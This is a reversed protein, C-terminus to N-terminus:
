LICSLLWAVTSYKKDTGAWSQQHLKSEGRTEIISQVGIADNFSLQWCCNDFKHLTRVLVLLRWIVTMLTWSWDWDDDMCSKSSILCPCSESTYTCWLDHLYVVNIGIKHVNLVFVICCHGVLVAIGFDSFMAELKLNLISVCKSALAHGLYNIRPNCGYYYTVWRSIALLPRWICRPRVNM